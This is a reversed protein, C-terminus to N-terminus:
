LIAMVRSISTKSEIRIDDQETIVLSEYYHHDNAAKHGNKKM